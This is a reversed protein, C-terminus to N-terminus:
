GELYMKIDKLEQVLHVLSDLGSVTNGLKMDSPEINHAHFSELHDLEKVIEVSSLHLTDSVEDARNVQEDACSYLNWENQLVDQDQQVWSESKSQYDPVQGKGLYETDFNAQVGSPCFSNIYIKYKNIFQDLINLIIGKKM